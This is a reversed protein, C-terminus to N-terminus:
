TPRIQWLSSCICSDAMAGVTREGSNPTKSMREEAGM